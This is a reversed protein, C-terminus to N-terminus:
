TSIKSFHNSDIDKFMRGSSKPELGLMKLKSGFGKRYVNWSKKAM